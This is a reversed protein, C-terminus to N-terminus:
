VTAAGRTVPKGREGAGLMSDVFRVRERDAERTHPKRRGRLIPERESRANVRVKV